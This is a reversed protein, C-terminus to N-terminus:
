PTVLEPQQKLLDAVDQVGMVAPSCLAVLVVALIRIELSLRL